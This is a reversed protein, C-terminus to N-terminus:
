AIDKLQEGKVLRKAIEIHWERSKLPFDVTMMKDGGWVYTFYEKNTWYHSGSISPFKPRPVNKPWTRVLLKELEQALEKQNHLWVDIVYDGIGLMHHGGTGYVTMKDTCGQSLALLAAAGACHLCRGLNSQLAVKGVFIWFEPTKDYDLSYDKAKAQAAGTQSTLDGDKPHPVDPVPKDNKISYPDTVVIKSWQDRLEAFKRIDYPAQKVPALNILRAANQNIKELQAQKLKAGVDQLVAQKSAKEQAAAQNKRAQEEAQRQQFQQAINGVPKAQAANSPVVVAPKGGPPVSQGQVGVLHAPRPPPLPNQHAPQGLQNGQRPPPQRLQLPQGPQNGQRPAPPRPQIVAQQARADNEINTFEAAIDADLLKIANARVSSLWRPNGFFNTGKFDKWTQIATSLTTLQERRRAVTGNAKYAQLATCIAQFQATRSKTGALEEFRASNMM